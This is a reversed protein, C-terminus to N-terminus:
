SARRSDLAPLSELASPGSPEASETEAAVRGTVRALFTELQSLTFPKSLHDDMGVALCRERDGRMAHATVAVITTRATAPEQGRILATAEFGNLLPMECDMFVLDYRRAEILRVAEAGDSALRVRCGLRHLMKRVVLQGVPDDDAVLVDLDFQQTVLRSSKSTRVDGRDLRTVDALTRAVVRSRLPYPIWADVHLATAAATEEHPGLGVVFLGRLLSAGLAHVLRAGPQIAWHEDLLVVLPRPAGVRERELVAALERASPAVTFPTHLIGLASCAFERSLANDTAVIVDVDDLTMWPGSVVKHDGRAFRATFWFESGKGPHSEVGIDGGMLQAFQKSVSLGLGTGGYHRATSADGQVYSQFLHAQVTAPIGVGSDIVRFRCLTDGSSEEAVEVKVIVQGDVTFKLANGILNLLIQRLRGQDGVVIRPVETEIVCGFALNKRRATEALVDVADEVVTRLDFEAMELTVRGAEIKSHDLIDNVVRLLNEAASRILTVCDRQEASLSTDLLLDAAGLIGTMPTRLEHSTNAVFVNKTHTIAIANDRADALELALEALQETQRRSCDHSYELEEAYARLSADAGLRQDTIDTVTGAFRVPVQEADRTATGRVLFWRYDGSRHRLRYEQRYPTGDALHAEIAAADAEFDDPHILAKLADSSNQLEDDAYGLLAKLSPSLFLTGLRLDWDWLGDGSGEFALALRESAAPAQLIAVAPIVNRDDSAGMDDDAVYAFTANGVDKETRGDTAV